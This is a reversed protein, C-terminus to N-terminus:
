SQHRRYYRMLLMAILDHARPVDLQEEAPENVLELAGEIAASSRIEVRRGTSKALEHPKPTTTKVM